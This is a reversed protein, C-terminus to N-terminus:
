VDAPNLKLKAKSYQQQLIIGPVFWAFFSSIAMLLLDVRMSTYIAIISCVWCLIGGWLMPKFRCMAGTIFTPLGYLMLFYSLVYNSFHFDSQTGSLRAYEGRLERVGSFVSANIFILLFICIGFALWIYDTAVNDYSRATRSRKEKITIYVQPIIAFFSLWFIDFPLQFNFQLEALKVLAIVTIVAGWMIAAIGTDYFANRAKNIMQTILVLSEKESFEDGSNTM